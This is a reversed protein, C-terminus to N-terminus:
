PLRCVLFRRDAVSGILLQQEYVAAASSASIQSGDNVYVSEVEFANEPYFSIKVVESPALRSEDAMYRTFTLLRPHAGAWLNGDEDVELNDVGTGADIVTILRLSNGAPNREFVTVTRGVSAAVYVRLGDRSVNVGNAYAFGSAAIRCDGDGCFLLYSRALQFYEEALKGWSSQSRHDNTVYFSRPGVAAVDNPSHMLPHAVSEVLAPGDEGIELIEVFHGDSRHNVVFLLPPGDPSRYLSIGHPHLEIPLDATLNTLQPAPSKLDYSFLTGRTGSRRDDASIYAVGAVPDITIDESSAVGEVTDCVGPAQLELIRFEGADFLTKLGFGLIAALLLATPILWRRRAM